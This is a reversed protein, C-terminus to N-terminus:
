HLKNKRKKIKRKLYKFSLYVGTISVITGGTMSAWMLINWFVPRDLFYKISFSHLAQYTWKRAKTNTNFYRTEGTKPNIYYLSKDRDNVTVRYVPLPYTHRKHIYYNDYDNILEIDVIEEDQIKSIKARIDNETLYLEKVSEPISADFYLLSDNIVAKYLPKDGFTAWELKQIRGDYKSLIDKYDLPYENPSIALYKDKIDTQLEPNHTKIIWQPIKQLSMMGSFAFTFVFIGFIFGFVHHWKYVSRYPSKLEKKRKYRKYFSRFAIIIGTICLLSGIGSLGIVVSKWLDTYHRLNAVYLWHPIAGMWAWFRSESNSYQIGEGTQSSIYLESKKEDQFHFKYIPFDNYYKDYPVWRDLHTLTDILIIPSSNIRSAYAQIDSFDQRMNLIGKTDVINYNTKTKYEIQIKGKSNSKLLFSEFYLNSSSLVRILSDVENISARNIVALGSHKETDTIKPFNHYIMVFGTLFWLLFLISLATGLIRHSKYLFKKWM